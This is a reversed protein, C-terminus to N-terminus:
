ITESNNITQRIRDLDSQKSQAYDLMKGSYHKEVNNKYSSFKNEQFEKFSNLSLEIRHEKDSFLRRIYAKPLRREVGNGDATILTDNKIHHTGYNELYAHGIIPKKSMLSFPKVRKDKKGHYKFM